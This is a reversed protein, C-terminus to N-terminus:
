HSISFGLARRHVELSRNEKWLPRRHRPACYDHQAHKTSRGFRTRTQWVQSRQDPLSFLYRRTYHLLIE